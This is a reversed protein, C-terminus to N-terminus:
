RGASFTSPAQRHIVEGWARRRCTRCRSFRQPLHALKRDILLEANGIGSMQCGAWTDQGYPSAYCMQGNGCPVRGNLGSLKRWNVDPLNPYSPGTTALVPRPLM